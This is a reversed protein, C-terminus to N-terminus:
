TDLEAAPDRRSQEFHPEAVAHQKRSPLQVAQHQVHSEVM